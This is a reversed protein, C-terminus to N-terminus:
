RRSALFRELTMPMETLRPPSVEVGSFMAGDEVWSRLPPPGWIEKRMPSDADWRIPECEIDIIQYHTTFLEVRHGDPDRFYVYQAHGPGHRGPGREVAHGLGMTGAIDCARMLTAADISTFAVHHLRPGTGNVFVIDHPNGKRQLFVGALDESSDAVIYESLRFGQAMYFDCQAQVDPALIQYHDLRHACGGKFERFATVKRPVVPMTACFELPVGAPDSVQLTRGQFPVDVWQAPLGRERYYIEARDLDDETFVRMGIRACRPSTGQRLVLSHHCAEELGRLYVTDGTEQTVILGVLETYFRKSAALDRVILVVHSARTINFAPHFVPPPIRM